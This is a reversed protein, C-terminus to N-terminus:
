LESVAKRFAESRLESTKWRDTGPCGPSLLVVDGPEAFAAAVHVALSMTEYVGSIEVEHAFAHIVNSSFPLSIDYLRKVKRRVLAQLPHWDLGKDMGGMIWHVRKAPQQELAFWAAHVTTAHTDDIFDVGDKTGIHVLRQSNLLPTFRDRLQATSCATHARLATRHVGTVVDNVCSCSSVAHNCNICTHAALANM